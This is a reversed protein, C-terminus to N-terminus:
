LGNACTKSNYFTTFRNTHYDKRRCLHNNLVEIERWKRINFYEKLTEPDLGQTIFWTRVEAETMDQLFESGYLDRLVKEWIRSRGNELALIEFHTHRGFSLGEEGAYGILDGERLAEGQQIRMKSLPTLEDWSMHMIRIEFDANAVFGRLITGFSDEYGESIWETAELDFPCYVEYGNTPSYGRDTANHIRFRENNLYQLGFPSTHEAGVRFQVPFEPYKYRKLFEDIM